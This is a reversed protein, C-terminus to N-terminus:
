DTRDIRGAMFDDMSNLVEAYMLPYALSWCHLRASFLMLIFPLHSNTVPLHQSAYTYPNLVKKDSSRTLVAQAAEWWPLATIAGLWM